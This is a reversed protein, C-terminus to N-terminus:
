TPKPGVYQPGPGFPSIAKGAKKGASLWLLPLAAPKQLTIATSPKTCM